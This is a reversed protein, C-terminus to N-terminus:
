CHPLILFTLANGGGTQLMEITIADSGIEQLEAHPFVLLAMFFFALLRRKEIFAGM